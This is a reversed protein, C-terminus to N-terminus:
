GATVIPHHSVKVSGADIMSCFIQAQSLQHFVEGAARASAETRWECIDLWEGEATKVLRRGLFGPLTILAGNSAEAAALFHEEEIHGALKFSVMELVEGTTITVKARSPGPHLELQTM